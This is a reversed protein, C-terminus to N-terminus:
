VAPQPYGELAEGVGALKVSAMFTYYRWEAISVGFLTEIARLLNSTRSATVPVLIAQLTLVFWRFREQGKDTAPFLTQFDNALTRLISM